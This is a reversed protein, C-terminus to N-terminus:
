LGKLLRAVERALFCMSRGLDKVKFNLSAILINNLQKDRFVCQWCDCYDDVFVVVVM